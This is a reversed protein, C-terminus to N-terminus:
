DARRVTERIRALADDLIARCESLQANTLTTKQAVQRVLTILEVLYRELSKGSDTAPAPQEPDRRPRALGTINEVLDGLQGGGLQNGLNSSLNSSFTTLNSGLNELGQGLRERDLFRQQQRLERAAQTIGVQINGTSDRIRTTLNQLKQYIEAELAALEDQRRQLEERGADTIEYVKRGGKQTHTVLGDAEMRQLRPYITGPSPAYLGMFRDELQRILEYGHRAGEDLLKLVYLRLRGHGFIQSV